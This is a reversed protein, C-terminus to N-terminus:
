KPTLYGPPFRARLMRERRAREENPIKAGFYAKTAASKIAAFEADYPLNDFTAHSWGNPDHVEALPWVDALTWAREDRLVLEVTIPFPPDYEPHASYYADFVESLRKAFFQLDDSLRVWAACSVDAKHTEVVLGIYQHPRLLIALDCRSEREFTPEIRQDCASIADEGGRDPLAHLLAAAGKKGLEEFFGKTVLAAAATGFSVVMTALPIHELLDGKSTPTIAVDLPGMAVDVGWAKEVALEIACLGCEHPHRAHRLNTQQANLEKSSPLESVAL